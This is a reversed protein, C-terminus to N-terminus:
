VEMVRVAAMNPSVFNKQINPHSSQLPVMRNLFKTSIARNALYLCKQLFFQFNLIAGINPSVFNKQFHCHRGQLSVRPTLFKTLIARDLVM